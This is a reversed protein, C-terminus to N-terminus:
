KWIITGRQSAVCLWRSCCWFRCRDQTKPKSKFRLLFPGHELCLMSLYAVVLRTRASEIKHRMMMADRRRADKLALGHFSSLLSSARNPQLCTTAFLLHPMASLCRPDPCKPAAPGPGVASCDTSTPDITSKSPLYILLRSKSFLIRAPLSLPHEASVATFYLLFSVRM